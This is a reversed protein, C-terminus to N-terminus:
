QRRYMLSFVVKIDDGTKLLGMLATPPTIGFSSMKLQISGSVKALGNPLRMAEAPISVEKSVGAITLLGVVIGKGKDNVVTLKKASLISFVVYPYQDARLAKYTLGDLIPFDSKLEKVKAHFSLHQLVLDKNNVISVADQCEVRQHTMKWNKLTSTGYIILTSKNQVFYYHEISAGPMESAFGTLSYILYLCAIVAKKQKM